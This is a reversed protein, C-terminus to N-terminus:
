RMFSPIIRSCQCFQKKLVYTNEDIDKPNCIAVFCCDQKGNVKNVHLEIGDENIDTIEKYGKKTDLLWKSRDHHEGCKCVRVLVHYFNNSIGDYFCYVLEYYCVHGNSVKRHIETQVDGAHRLLPKCEDLIKNVDTISTM